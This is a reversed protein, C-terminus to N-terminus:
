DPSKILVTINHFDSLTTDYPNQGVDLRNSAGHPGNIMFTLHYRMPAITSFKRIVPM